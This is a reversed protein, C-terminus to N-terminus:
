EEESADSGEGLNHAGTSAEEARSYDLEGQKIPRPFLPSACDLFIMGTWKAHGPKFLEPITEPLRTSWNYGEVVAGGREPFPGDKLQIAYPTANHHGHIIGHKAHMEKNPWPMVEVLQREARYVVTVFRAGGLLSVARPGARLRVIPQRHKTAPHRVLLFRDEPTRRNHWQSPSPADEPDADEPDPELRERIMKHVRAAIDKALEERLEELPAGFPGSILSEALRAGIKDAILDVLATPVVTETTNEDPVAITDDM